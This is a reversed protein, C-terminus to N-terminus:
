FKYKIAFYLSHTTSEYSSIAQATLLADGGSWDVESKLDDGDVVIEKLEYFTLISWYDTLDYEAGIQFFATTFSMEDPYDITSGDQFTISDFATELKGFGFGGGVNVRWGDQQLYLRAMADAEWKLSDRDHARLGIGAGWKPTIPIEYGVMLYVDGDNNMAKSFDEPDIDLSVADFVGDSYKSERPSDAIGYAAEVFLNGEKMRKMDTENSGFLLSAIALMLIIKKM